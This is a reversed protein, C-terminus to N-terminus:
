KYPVNWVEQAKLAKDKDLFNSVLIGDFKWQKCLHIHQPKTTNLCKLSSPYM